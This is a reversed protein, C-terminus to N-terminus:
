AARLVSEGFRHLDRSPAKLSRQSSRSGSSLLPTGTMPGNRSARPSKFVTLFFSKTSHQSSDQGIYFCAMAQSLWKVPSISFKTAPPLPRKFSPWCRRGLPEYLLM